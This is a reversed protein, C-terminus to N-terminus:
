LQVPVIPELKEMPKFDLCLHDFGFATFRCYRGDQPVCTHHMDPLCGAKANYVVGFIGAVVMLSVAAIAIKKKM